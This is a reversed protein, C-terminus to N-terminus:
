AGFKVQNREIGRHKGTNRRERARESGLNELGRAEVKKGKKYDKMLPTM